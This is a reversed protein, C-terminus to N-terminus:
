LYLYEFNIDYDKMKAIIQHIQASSPLYENRKKNFSFLIHSM